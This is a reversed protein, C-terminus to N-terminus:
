GVAELIPTLSPTSLTVLPTTATPTPLPSVGGARDALWDELAAVQQSYLDIWRQNYQRNVDLRLLGLANKYYDLAQEVSDPNNGDISLLRLGLWANSHAATARTRAQREPESTNYLDIVMQLQPLAEDWHDGYGTISRWVNIQGIGFATKVDIDATLPKDQSLGAERYCRLALEGLLQPAEPLPADVDRCQQKTDLTLDPDYLPPNEGARQQALRYLAIGRGVLARAYDPRQQLASAYAALAAEVDPARVAANGAFINLVELGQPETDIAQQFSDRSADFDGSIYLSLGRLFFRLVALRDQMASAASIADDSQGVFEVPDGLRDAGILEPELAAFEATVYFEPQYINFIDDSRVIGYIVVDAGLREAIQAALRERELPDASLIHGVGNATRGLINDVQPLQRVADYVIDSMDEALRSQTVTGDIEQFGLGAVVVNFANAPMPAATATATPTPTPTPSPTLTATATATPTVSPALLGVSYLINNRQIEPLSQFLGIIITVIIAITAVLLTVLSYSSRWESRLKEGQVITQEGIHTQSVNVVGGSVDGLTATQMVSPARSPEGMPQQPESPVNEPSLFGGVEPTEGGVAEVGELFKAIAAQRFGGSFDVYQLEGLAIPLAVDKELLVPIIPKDLRVATVFEWQCWESAVSEATLAYVFVDCAAIQERLQGQWPHGAILQKDFWPDHDNESLVAALRKIQPLDIHAYSIFLRM